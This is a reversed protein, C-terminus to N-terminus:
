CGDILEEIADKVKARISNNSISKDRISQYHKQHEEPIMAHCTAINNGKIKLIHYVVRMSHLTSFVRNCWGCQWGQKGVKCAVKIGYKDSWIGEETKPTSLISSGSQSVKDGTL